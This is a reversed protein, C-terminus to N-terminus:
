LLAACVRCDRHFHKLRLVNIFQASRSTAICIYRIPRAKLKLAAAASAPRSGARPHHQPMQQWRQREGPARRGVAPVQLV